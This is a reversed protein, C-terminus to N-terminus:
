IFAKAIKLNGKICNHIVYKIRINKSILWSKPAAFHIISINNKSKKM